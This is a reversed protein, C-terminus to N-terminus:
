GASRPPQQLHLDGILEDGIAHDVLQHALVRRRAEAEDHVAGFVGLLEVDLSAQGARVVFSSASSPSQAGLNRCGGRRELVIPTM